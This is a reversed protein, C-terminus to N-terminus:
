SSAVAELEWPTNNKVMANLVTLLKRMCAVIAVKPPKGAHRLRKYFEKIVPNWRIGSLVSMYLARRVRARGGCIKRQGQYRGSDRNFPALGVLAAIERRNLEGLEPVFVCLTRSLHPGVSPATELLEAREHWVPTQRLLDNIESDLAEVQREMWSIHKTISKRMKLSALELRNKEAVIIAQLQERRVLLERMALLQADPIPRQQPKIASAFHALVGADIRDTKALEGTAKAFDRVQRPNVVVVPLQAEYIAIVAAAEYGGTAETVVLQPQLKDLYKVLKRVGAADNSFSCPHNQPRSDVDLRSKSVDIGVFPQDSM